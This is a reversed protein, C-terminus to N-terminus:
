NMREAVFRIFKNISNSISDLVNIKCPALGLFYLTWFIFWNISYVIYLCLGIDKYKNSELIINMTFFVGIFWILLTLIIFM